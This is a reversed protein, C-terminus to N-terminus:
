IKGEFCREITQAERVLADSVPSESLKGMARLRGAFALAEDGRMFYGTWDNELKLPGTERRM